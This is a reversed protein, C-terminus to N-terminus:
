ARESAASTRACIWHDAGGVLVPGAFGWRTTVGTWDVRLPFETDEIQTLDFVDRGTYTTISVRDGSYTWGEVVAQLDTLHYPFEFAPKFLVDFYSRRASVRYQINAQGLADAVSNPFRGGVAVRSALLSIAAEGSFGGQGADTEIDLVSSVRGGHEAAFGGSMLEVRDIMDANFVSFLGGLHFPSFMPVGDLLILNQDQSGGRVHFSASFDSTSVVGPLVEIARVPDPEGIGPVLKLEDLELERVTAGGLDEFRARERSRDARVSIGELQLASQELRVDVELTAAFGVQITEIYESYGLAQIRMEYDGPLAESIRFSGLRDTEAVMTRDEGQYLAVTAAFVAVGETDRVRGQVTGLQAKVLTPCVAIGFSACWLVACALRRPLSHNLPRPPSFM